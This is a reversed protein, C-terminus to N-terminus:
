CWRRKEVSQVTFFIFLFSGSLYYVIGPIDIIGSLFNSYHSTLSLSALVKEFAGEFISQDAVLVILLALIGVIGLIVSVWWNKTMVYVILAGIIVCVCFCLWSAVASSPILGGIAEAMYSVFLILFTLVAAIVQSETISSVFLGISISFFGVLIFGLISTYSMSYSITGYQALVIPYFMFIIVPICFITLMALYKSLVIKWTGVPATLLMQDTKQRRDEAISKMTLIPILIMFLVITSSLAYSIYPYGSGLNIATFYLSVVGVMFAIFVCGIMSTFFSRIEKKYIATM